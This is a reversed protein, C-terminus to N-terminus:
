FKDVRTQKQKKEEFSKSRKRPIGLESNPSQKEPSAAESSGRNPRSPSGTSKEDEEEFEGFQGATDDLGDEEEEDMLCKRCMEDNYNNSGEDEAEASEEESEISLVVKNFENLCRRSLSLQILLECFYVKFENRITSEIEDLPNDLMFNENERKEAEVVPGVQKQKPEQKKKDRKEGAVKLLASVLKREYHTHARTLKLKKENMFDIKQSDLNIIADPTAKPYHLLLQNTTGIFFYKVEELLPLENLTLLPIFPFEKHNLLKLPFGFQGMSRLYKKLGISQNFDFALAAPFYGLLSYMFESLQTAISSYVIIRSGLMLM